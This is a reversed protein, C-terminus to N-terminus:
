GNTVRGQMALHSLNGDPAGLPLSPVVSFGTWTPIEGDAASFSLQGTTAPLTGQAPPHAPDDLRAFTLINVGLVGDIEQIVEYLNSIYLTQGFDVNDFALLASVVDEVQQQVLKQSFQPRVTVTADIVVQVYRPDLPYAVISTMIRKTDLFALLDEKLTDSAYGGGVPAVTLQITNWGPSQAIAKAVGFSKALTVYDAATVARGMSRFQQPGRLVASAIAEADAGGGASGVNVVLKLQPIASVAKAIAGAGVNGKTGGGVSYTATINNSGRGPVKGYTGDGFEIWVRGNEDRRVTYVASTGLSDVLTAVRTWSAPGGGENVSVTLTDDVVPARALAYRQGASGDSSAVIEGAVNADIQVVPLTQYARYVTSTKPLPAPPPVVRGQTDVGLRGQGDVACLPLTSCDVTLPRQIFQFSVPAGGTAAATTKFAAGSPIPVTGTFTAPFLLTLDASAALPPSLEYGILRLLQVVSRREVATELFSEGAIRDQNYFLSDGMSALLELLMVGLDNPSQDTWEPLRDAALELLAALISAYDKNTYDIQLQGNSM